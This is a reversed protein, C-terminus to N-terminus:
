ICYNTLGLSRNKGGVKGRPTLFPLGGWYEQRSFELSLPAQCAVTWSSVWLSDSVVSRSLMCVGKWTNNLWGTTDSEKHGWPSCCELGGQGEGDGSTQGLKHENCWHHQRAIEDESARKEKQGWNKGADSVKGILWRHVGSSWFVPAEADTRGTFIWPQGGNLNVPKIEKSDLPSGHTKELVM